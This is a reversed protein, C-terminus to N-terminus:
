LNAEFKSVMADLIPETNNRRDNITPDEMARDGAADGLADGGVLAGEGDRECEGDGDDVDVGAGAGVGLCALGVGEGVGLCAVVGAGEGLDAAGAGDAEAGVGVGDAEDDDGGAGAAGEGESSGASQDGGASAGGALPPTSNDAPNVTATANASVTSFMIMRHMANHIQQNVYDEINWEYIHGGSYCNTIIENSEEILVDAPTPRPYYYKETTPKEAWKQIKNIQDQYVQKYNPEEILKDRLNKDLTTLKLKLRKFNEELFDELDKMPNLKFDTIIPPSQLSPTTMGITKSTIIEVPNEAIVSQTKMVEILQEERNQLSSIQEGLVGLYM